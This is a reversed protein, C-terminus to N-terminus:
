TREGTTATVAGSGSGNNAITLARPIPGSSYSLNDFLYGFGACSACPTGAQRFLISDVPRSSGAPDAPTQSETCWRYYDEWSTGKHYLVDDVYVKVVDNHPGDYLDMTVSVTHKTASDFPGVTTVQFDDPASCGDSPTGLTGYPSVDQYDQFTLTLGGATDNFRLFSMRAGDGRDPALTMSLGSQVTLPTTSAVDVSYQFRGQLNAPDAVVGGGHNIANSDGAAQALSPSYPWHGFEDSTVANSMRFSQTEFGAVGPNTVVAQDYSPSIAAGGSGAWGDQGDISGTPYTPPEFTIGRSDALASTM